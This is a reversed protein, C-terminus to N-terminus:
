SEWLATYLKAQSKINNIQSITRRKKKPTNNWFIEFRLKWNANTKVTTATTTM